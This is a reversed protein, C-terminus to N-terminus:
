EAERSEEAFVRAVRGPIMQEYSKGDVTIGFGSYTNIFVGMTEFLRCFFLKKGIIQAKTM